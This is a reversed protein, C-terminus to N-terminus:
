VFFNVLLLDVLAHPIHLLIFTHAADKNLQGQRLMDIFLFHKIQYAGLLVYVTQM